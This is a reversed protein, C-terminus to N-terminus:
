SLYKVVLGWCLGVINLNYAVTALIHSGGLHNPHTGFPGGEASELVLAMLELHV